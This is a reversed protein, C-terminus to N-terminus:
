KTLYSVCSKPTRGTERWKPGVIVVDRRAKERSERRHVRLYLMPQEIRPPHKRRQVGLSASPKALAAPFWEPVHGGRDVRDVYRALQSRLKV